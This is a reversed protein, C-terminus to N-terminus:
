KVRKYYFDQKVFKGKYQGDVWAHLSDQSVMHYVVRQPFDHAPNSFVFEKNASSILKFSVPKGGNQNSVTPIYCISDGKQVLHVNEEIMTDKGIVKFGQSQLESKNIVKWRECILGKKTKMQWTGGALFQLSKFTETTGSYVFSCTIAAAFLISRKM